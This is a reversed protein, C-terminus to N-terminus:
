LVKGPNLIGKPDLAKKIARMMDLEVESKYRKLVDRKMQGIGHEASISGGLETVLEFIADSMTDWLALYQAKDMHEPQTVNYHLNGDGFHGFPVPLAGPCVGDVVKAARQLFEPILAVPVSIDHKISGGASKQAESFAERLRWFDEAQRLSRAITADRILGQGHASTLLPEITNAIRTGKGGNSLEILAYWPYDDTFPDRVNPMYKLAFEQARHAWLEFATLSSGAESEARRFLKMAADPTDFAVIATEREAPMPFLKLSAATIIGLTGESGILLDRLDYGTNDKKLRRLGHWIRGDALVAELGLALSRANGYALVATGGANTALVGGIQASGESALSLPFLRGAAKAANQAETLTVGAEVIMTGGIADVNRIGKLRALSLVIESGDGSPIQGGVLGTNGGQPVVAVDEAHALTLIRSVEDTSGPRLVVPTSGTYRDRWEHLYAGQDEARTLANTEGVIKAFRTILSESLTKVHM